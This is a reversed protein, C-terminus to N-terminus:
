SPLFKKFEYLVSLREKTFIFRESELLSIAFTLACISEAIAFLFHSIIVVWEQPFAETSSKPEAERPFFGRMTM